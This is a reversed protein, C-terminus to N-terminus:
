IPLFFKKGQKKNDVTNMFKYESDILAFTNIFILAVNAMIDVNAFGFAM